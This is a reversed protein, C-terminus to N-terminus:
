EGRKEKLNIYYKINDLIKGRYKSVNHLFIEDGRFMENIMADDDPDIRLDGVGDFKLLNFDTIEGHKNKHYLYVNIDEGWGMEALKGKLELKFVGKKVLKPKTPSYCEPVLIANIKKTKWKDVLKFDIVRYDPEKNFIPNTLENKEKIRDELVSQYFENSELVKSKYIPIKIFNVHAYPDNRFQEKTLKTICRYNDNLLKNINNIILDMNDIYFMVDEKRVAIKKGLRETTVPKYELIHVEKKEIGYNIIELSLKDLNSTFYIIYNESHKDLKSKIYDIIDGVLYYIGNDKISAKRYEKIELTEM